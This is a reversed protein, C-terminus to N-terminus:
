FQQISAIFSKYRIRAIIIIATTSLTFLVGIAIGTFEPVKHNGAIEIQGTGNDFDIALERKNNNITENYATYQGDEFVAYDNYSTSATRQNNKSDILNGPIEISLKGKSKSSINALLTTNDKELTIATLKNSTGEIQYKIPFTKGNIQLNYINSSNTTMNTARRANLSANSLITSNTGSVLNKSSNDQIKLITTTPLFTANFIAHHGAPSQLNSLQSHKSQDNEQSKSHISMKKNDHDSNNSSNSDLQGLPMPFEFPAADYNVATTLAHSHYPPLKKEMVLGTLKLKSSGFSNVHNSICTLQTTLPSQELKDLNIYIQCIRSAISNETSMRPTALISTLLPKNANISVIKTHLKDLRRQEQLYADSNTMFASYISVVLFLMLAVV